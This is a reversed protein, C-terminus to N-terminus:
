FLDSNFRQMRLKPAFRLDVTGEFRRSSGVIVAYDYPSEYAYSHSPQITVTNYPLPSPKPREATVPSVPKNVTYQNRPEILVTTATVQQTYYDTYSEAYLTVPNTRTPTRPSRPSRPSIEAYELPENRRHSKPSIIPIDDNTAWRPRIIKYNYSPVSQSYAHRKPSPGRNQAPLDSKSPRHSRRMQPSPSRAKTKHIPSYSRRPTARVRPGRSHARFTSPGPSTRRGPFPKEPAPASREYPPIGTAKKEKRGRTEGRVYMDWGERIDDYKQDFVRRKEDDQLTEYAEQVKCFEDSSIGPNKDPHTMLLKKRYAKKIEAATASQTLGLVRYCDIETPAEMTQSYDKSETGQVQASNANSIVKQPILAKPNQHLNFYNVDFRGPPEPQNAGILEARLMVRNTVGATDADCISARRAQLFQEFSSVRQCHFGSAEFCGNLLLYELQREKVRLMCGPEMVQHPSEIASFPLKWQRKELQLLVFGPQNARAELYRAVGGQQPLSSRPRGEAAAESGGPAGAPDGDNGLKPHTVSSAFHAGILALANQLPHGSLQGRFGQLPNASNKGLETKKM